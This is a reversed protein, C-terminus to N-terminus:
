SCRLSFFSSLSRRTPQPIIMLPPSYDYDHFRHIRISKQAAICAAATIGGKTSLANTIPRPFRAVHRSSTM